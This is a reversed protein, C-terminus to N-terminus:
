DRNRRLLYAASIEAESMTEGTDTLYSLNNYYGKEYPIVSTDGCYPHFEWTTGDERLFLAKFKLSNLTEDQTAGELIVMKEPVTAEKGSNWIHYIVVKGRVLESQSLIQHEAFIKRTRNNPVLEGDTIEKFSYCSDDWGDDFSVSLVKGLKYRTKLTPISITPYFRYKGTLLNKIQAFFGPNLSVRCPMISHGTSYPGAFIYRHDPTVEIGDAQYPEGVKIDTFGQGV